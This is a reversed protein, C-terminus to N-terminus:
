GTIRDIMSEILALDAESAMDLTRAIEAVRASLLVPVRASHQEDLDVILRLSLARAWAAMVDVGPNSQLKEWSSVAAGTYPRDRGLRHAIMKGVQEQSLGIAERRARLLDRLRKTHGTSMCGRPGGQVDGIANGDFSIQSGAPM